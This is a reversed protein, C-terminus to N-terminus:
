RAQKCLAEYAQGVSTLSGSPVDAIVQRTETDSVLQLPEADVTPSWTVSSFMNDSGFPSVLTIGNDRAYAVVAGLFEADLPAWFGYTQLKQEAPAGALPSSSTTKNLWTEDMHVPLHHSAAISLDDGLTGLQAQYSTSTPYFHVSLYDIGPVSAIAQALSPSEWTGTGAGIQTRSPTLGTLETTLVSAVGSATDFSLGLDTTFTSVEDILDLDQPALDDIVIQAQQRQDAAYSPVTLTKYFAAVPVSSLSPIVPNQEVALAMGAHHIADAVKEYFALYQSSGTFTPLLLPFAVNVVVAQVGMARLDAIEDDVITLYGSSFLHHGFNGNALQLETALETGGGGTRTGTGAAARVSAVVSGLAQYQSQYESPVPAAPTTPPAATVATTSPASTPAGPVTTTSRTGSSRAARPTTGHTTGTSSCGAAAIAVVVSAVAVASRRM